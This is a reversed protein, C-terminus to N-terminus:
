WRQGSSAWKWWDQGCIEAFNKLSQLMSRNYSLDFDKMKGIPIEVYQKNGIWKPLCPVYVKSEFIAVQNNM